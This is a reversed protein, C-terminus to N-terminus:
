GSISVKRSIGSLVAQGSAYAMICSQTNQIHTSCLGLRPDQVSIQHISRLEEKHPHHKGASVHLVTCAKRMDSSVSCTQM